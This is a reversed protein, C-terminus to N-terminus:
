VVLIDKRCLPCYSQNKTSYTHLAWTRICEKDFTHGCLLEVPEKFSEHCISCPCVECGSPNCEHSVQKYWLKSDIVSTVEPSIRSHLNYRSLIVINACYRRLYIPYGIHYMTDLLLGLLLLSIWMTFASNCVITLILNSTYCMLHCVKMYRPTRDEEPHLLSSILKKEYKFAFLCSFILSTTILLLASINDYQVFLYATLVIISYQNILTEYYRKILITNVLLVMLYVSSSVIEFIYKLVSLGLTSMRILLYLPTCIIAIINLKPNDLEYKLIKRRYFVYEDHSDIYFM